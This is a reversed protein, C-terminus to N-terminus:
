TTAFKREVWLSPAARRDIKLPLSTAPRVKRPRTPAPAAPSPRALLRAVGVVTPQGNFAIAWGSAITGAGNFPERCDDVVYLNWTGNANASQFTSNLSTSFPGTGPGGSPWTDPDSGTTCLFSTNNSGTEVYDTPKWTGGSVLDNEPLSSPASDRFILNIGSACVNCGTGADSMLTVKGSNPGVLAADVDDPRNHTFGFLEVTVSTISAPGGSVTIASPYPSAIAAGACPAPACTPDNITIAASNTFAVAASAAGLAGLALAVVVLRKTGRRTDSGRTM